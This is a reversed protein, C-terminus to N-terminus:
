LISVAKKEIYEIKILISKIYKTKMSCISKKEFINSIKSCVENKFFINGKKNSISTDNRNYQIKMSYISNGKFINFTKLIYKM